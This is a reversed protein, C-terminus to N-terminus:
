CGVPQYPPSVRRRWAPAWPMSAAGFVTKSLLLTGVIVFAFLLPVIPTVGGINGTMFWHLLPSSNQGAPTGNTYLLAAGELIGNMALTVVIPSLGLVVVGVGNVLGIFAGLLLVLPVAYFLAFDSGHLTGAVVIGCLAITWPLSLDLGGTLIVAGQGLALVVLFASLVLLSNWYHLNLVVNGLVFQSVVLVLVLCVYAPLSHRIIDAHRRM